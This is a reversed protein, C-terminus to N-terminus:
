GVPEFAGHQSLFEAITTKAVDVVEPSLAEPVRDVMIWNPPAFYSEERETLRSELIKSAYNYRCPIKRATPLEVELDICETVPWLTVRYRGDTRDHHRCFEDM